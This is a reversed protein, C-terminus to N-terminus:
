GFIFQNRIAACWEIIDSMQMPETNWLMDSVLLAQFYVFCQMVETNSYCAQFLAYLDEFVCRSCTGDDGVLNPLTRSRRQQLVWQMSCDELGHSDHVMEPSM